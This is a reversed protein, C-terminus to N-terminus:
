RWSPPLAAARGLRCALGALVAEVKGVHTAARCNRGDERAGRFANGGGGRKGGQRGLRAHRRQTGGRRCALEGRQRDVLAGRQLGPEVGRHAARAIGAARHRAACSKTVSTHGCACSALRAGADRGLEHDGLRRELGAPALLLQAV